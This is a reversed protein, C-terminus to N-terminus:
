SPGFRGGSVAMLAMLECWRLPREAEFGVDPSGADKRLAFSSSAGRGNTQIELLVWLDHALHCQVSAVQLGIAARLTMWWVSADGGACGSGNEKGIGGTRSSRPTELCKGPWKATSETVRESSWPSNKESRPGERQPLVVVRRMIGRKSSGVAPSIRRLSPGM